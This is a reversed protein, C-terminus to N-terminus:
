IINWKGRGSVLHVGDDPFLLIETKSGIAGKITIVDTSQNVIMKVVGHQTPDPLTITPTASYVITLEEDSLALTTNISVEKMDYRSFDDTEIWLDKEKPSAPEDPQVYIGSSGGSVYDGLNAIIEASVSNPGDTYFSPRRGTYDPEVIVADIFADYTSDTNTFKVVLNNSGGHTLSVSYSEPIWNLNYDFELYTGTRGLTDTITYPLGMADMNFVELKVKGGKKHFSVRTKDSVSNYYTPHIVGEGDQMCSTGVPLKLSRTNFFSSDKTCIVTNDSGAWYVPTDTDKIVVEFQSNYCMNKFWKIFKTDMGFQDFIIGHGNEDALVVDGDTNVYFTDTWVPTAPNVKETNKSIKIGEAPDILIKNKEVNPTSGITGIKEMLLYGNDIHFQGETGIYVANNWEGTGANMKDIQFGSEPTIVIRSIPTSGIPTAGKANNSQLYLGNASLLTYFTAWNDKSFSIKDNLYHISGYGGIDDGLFGRKNIYNSGAVIKNNNANIEDNKKVIDAIEQSYKGFNDRNTEIVNASVSANVFIKNLNALATNLENTNSFNFSLSNNVPDHSYSILRLELNNYGLRSCDINIFDGINIKSWLDKMDGISFLDVSDIELSIPLQSKLNIYQVAYNYLQEANTVSKMELSDEFIFRSLEQRESLIFNNDWSLLNKLATINANVADLQSQLSSIEANKASIDSNISNLIVVLDRYEQNDTNQTNKIIDQADLTAKQQTELDYLETEKTTKDTTISNKQSVYGAFVGEQSSILSKYDNYSSVLGSSFYGNDLFWDFNEVYLQGTVNYQSINVTENKGYVQLRTVINDQIDSKKLDKIFNEDSLVIGTNEGYESASYIDIINNVTDFIFVCNYDKQLQAFVDAYTNKDFVFAHYENVSPSMYGVTWTGYMNNNSLMFNLIGNTGVTDYLLQSSEEGVKYGRLIKSNFIHYALSKCNVEKKIDVVGVDIPQNMAFYEHSILSGTSSNYIGLHILYGSKLSDYLTNKTQTSDNYNYEVTFTLENFSDYRPSYKLSSYDLEGLETKDPKCLFIRYERIAYVSM